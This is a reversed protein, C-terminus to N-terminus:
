FDKHKAMHKIMQPTLVPKFCFQCFFYNNQKSVNIKITELATFLSSM